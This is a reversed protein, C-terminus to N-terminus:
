AVKRASAKAASPFPHAPGSGPTESPVSGTARRRALADDGREAPDPTILEAAGPGPSNLDRWLEQATGTRMAAHRRLAKELAFNLPAPLQTAMERPKGALTEEQTFRMETSYALQLLLLGCHYIDTRHEIPGFESPNIVEPPLMWKARTNQPSLDSLLKTIGLDGLKFQAAGPDEPNMENRVTAVFVNGLHIDQHAFGANHIFNVAQLLCRAVPMLTSEDLWSVAMLSLRNYIKRSM